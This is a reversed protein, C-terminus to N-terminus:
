ISQEDQTEWEWLGPMGRAPVPEILSVPNALEWAYRGTAYNGFALERQSLRAVFLPDIRHVAILEATGIVAGTPLTGPQTILNALAQYDLDSSLIEGMVDLLEKLAWAEDFTYCGAAALKASAHIALPGRYRTSWNRTEYKKGGSVALTAWPQIVSLAKM